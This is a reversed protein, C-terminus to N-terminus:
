QIHSNKHTHSYASPLIYFPFFVVGNLFTCFYLLTINSTVRKSYEVSETSEFTYEIKVDLLWICVFLLLDMVCLVVLTHTNHTHTHTIVSMGRTWTERNEQDKKRVSCLESASVWESVGSQGNLVCICLLGIWGCLQFSGGDVLHPVSLLGPCLLMLTTSSETHSTHRHTDGSGSQRHLMAWNHGNSILVQDDKAEDM